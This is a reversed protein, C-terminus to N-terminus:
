KPDPKETTEMKIETKKNPGEITVKRTKKNESQCGLCAFAVASVTLIVILRM